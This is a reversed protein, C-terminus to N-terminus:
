LGGGTLKGKLDLLDSEGETVVHLDLDVGADTTSGDTLVDLLELLALMQNNTSGTTDQVHDGLAVHADIVDLDEDEILGILHKGATELVLDVVDELAHRRVDLHGKEGGGHGRLSHLQGLLEHTVGNTDEDLLILKGEFTNALEEDGDLLLVPFEVREAIQVLGERDGLGDDVAVGTSLDVPEGLFHTAAVKGDGSHVGIEILLLTIENHTLETGTGGTDQDGGIKQRTTDIDLLHGQDHIEVEGSGVLVVKMTDTARTTETTLTDGDVEDGLLVPGLKLLKLTVVRSLDLLHGHVDGIQELCHL